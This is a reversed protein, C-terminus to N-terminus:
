SVDTCDDEAAVTEDEPAKEKEEQEIRDCCSEQVLKSSKLVSGIWSYGSRSMIHNGLLATAEKELAETM